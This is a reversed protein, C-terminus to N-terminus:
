EEAWVSELLARFWDEFDRAGSNVGYGMYLIAIRQNGVFISNHQKSCLYERDYKASFLEEFPNQANVDGMNVYYSIFPGDGKELM